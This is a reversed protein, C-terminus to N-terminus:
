KQSQNSSLNALAAYIIFSFTVYYLIYLVTTIKPFESFVNIYISMFLNVNLITSFAAAIFLPILNIFHNYASNSQLTASQIYIYYIISGMLFLMFITAMNDPQAKFATIISGVILLMEILKLKEPQKLNIAEIKNYVKDYILKIKNYVKDYITKVIGM